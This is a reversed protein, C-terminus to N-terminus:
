IAGPMVATGICRLSDRRITSVDRALERVEWLLLQVPIQTHPLDLEPTAVRHSMRMSEFDYTLVKPQV